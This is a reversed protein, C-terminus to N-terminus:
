EQTSMSTQSMDLIDELSYMGHISVYDDGSLIHENVVIIDCPCEISAYLIFSILLGILGVLIKKNSYPIM